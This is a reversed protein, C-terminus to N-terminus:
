PAATRDLDITRVDVDAPLDLEFREDAVANNLEFDEFHYETVSGDPEEYRIQVPLFRERDFWLTMGAIRKAVRSFRPTLEIRYPREEKPFATRLDFYRKLQDLPQTAGMFQMIRESQKGVQIREATGLDRYWTLMEDDRIVMDVANPEDFTWRVRDPARFLLRGRAEEPALLLASEKRQVFRVELSEVAAQAQDIRALLVTVREDASLGDASPDRTEAAAHAGDGDRAVATSALLLVLAALLGARARFSASSRRSSSTSFWRM